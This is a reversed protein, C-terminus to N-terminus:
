SVALGQAKPEKRVILHSGLLAAGISLGCLLVLWFLAKEPPEGIPNLREPAVPEIVRSVTTFAVSPANGVGTSGTNEQRVTGIPVTATGHAAGQAQPANQGQATPPADVPFPTQEPPKVSPKTINALAPSTAPVLMLVSLCLLTIRQSRSM